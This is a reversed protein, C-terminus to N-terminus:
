NDICLYNDIYIFPGIPFYSHLSASPQDVPTPAKHSGKVTDSHMNAREGGEAEGKGGEEAQGRQM